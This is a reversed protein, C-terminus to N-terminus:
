ATCSEGDEGAFGAALRELQRKRLALAPLPELGAAALIQEWRYVSDHRRLVHAVLRGRLAEIEDPQAELEALVRAIAASDAELPRVAGSWFQAAFARSTPARGVLLAGGAAGEMYRPGFEEQGGTKDPRDSNAVDVVFYRTRQVLDALRDRHEVYSSVRPNLQVSDFLYFRETKEATERLAHHLEARRRGMWHVDIARPRGPARPAFRLADVSPALYDAPRGTAQHLAEVGGACPTFVHDFRRLLALDGAHEPLEDRWVEDVNIVAKRALGLIRGLPHLRALEPLSHISLFLLDYPQARAFRAPTAFLGPALREIRRALRGASEGLLLLEVADVACAVDEFEYTGCRSITPAVERDSLILVRATAPSRM